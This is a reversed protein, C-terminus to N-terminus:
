HAFMGARLMLKVSLALTVASLALVAILLLSENSFLPNRLRPNHRLYCRGYLTLRAAVIVCGEAKAARVLGKEELAYVALACDLPLAEGGRLARLVEKEKGSLWIREM